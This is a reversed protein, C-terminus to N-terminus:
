LYTDKIRNYYVSRKEGDNPKPIWGREIAYNFPTKEESTILESDGGGIKQVVYKTTGLTQAGGAYFLEYGNKKAAMKAIESITPTSIKYTSPNYAM